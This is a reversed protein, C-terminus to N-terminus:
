FFTVKHPIIPPALGRKEVLAFDIDQFFQHTQIEEYGHKSYCGLRFYPDKDLLQILYCFVRELLDETDAGRNTPIVPIDRVISVFTEEDCSKM